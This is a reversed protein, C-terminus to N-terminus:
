FGHQLKRDHVFDLLQERFSALNNEIDGYECTNFILEKESFYRGNEDIYSGSDPDYSEGNTFFSEYVDHWGFCSVLAFPQEDPDIEHGVDKGVAWSGNPYIAFREDSDACLYASLAARGIAEDIIEKAVSKEMEIV